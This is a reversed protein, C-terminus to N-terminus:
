FDPISQADRMLKEVPYDKCVGYGGFIQVADTTVKMVTDGCFTKTIAGERPIAKGEDLLIMAHHVLQRAAETQIEMDALMMQIAEFQGIPKGFQIREKAYKVLNM